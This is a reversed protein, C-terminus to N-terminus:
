CWFSVKEKQQIQLMVGRNLSRPCDHLTKYEVLYISKMWLNGTHDFEQEYRVM